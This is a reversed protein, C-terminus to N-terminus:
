FDIKEMLHFIIYKNLENLYVPAQVNILLKFFVGTDEVYFKIM